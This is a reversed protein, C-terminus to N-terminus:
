KKLEEIFKGPHCASSFVIKVNEEIVVKILDAADGRLLPINVGFPKDTAVRYM